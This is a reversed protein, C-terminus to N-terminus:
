CRQGRAMLFEAFLFDSESDIDVARVRPIVFYRTRPTLFSMARLFTAVRIGYIPGDFYTPQLDQRRSLYEARPYVPQLMGEGNGRLSWQPPDDAEFVGMVSECGGGALIAAAQRIDQASRLPSTPQLLFLNEPPACQRESVWEIAHEIVPPMPAQEGALQAPRLIVQAGYHAAIEAIRNSDTSVHVDDFVGSDQASLISHAVLPIGGLLRVNKEPVGRSGGRAPILALNVAGRPRETNSDVTSM